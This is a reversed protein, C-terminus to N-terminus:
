LDEIPKFPKFTEAYNILHPSGRHYIINYYIHETKIIEQIVHAYLTALYYQM